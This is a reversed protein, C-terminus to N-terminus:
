REFTPLEPEDAQTALHSPTGGSLARVLDEVLALLLVALGLLMASQPIWLPITLLGQSVEHFRWSDYVFRGIWWCAWGVMGSAVALVVSEVLRRPQGKLRDIILGVRIQDGHRYTPGLGLMATAALAYAAFDDASKVQGGFQRLAVNALIIAAIAVLAAVALFAAVRYIPDFPSKMIEGKASEDASTTM